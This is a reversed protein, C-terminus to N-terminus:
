QAGGFLMVDSATTHTEAAAMAIMAANVEAATSTIPVIVQFEGSESYDVGFSVTRSTGESCVSKILAAIM